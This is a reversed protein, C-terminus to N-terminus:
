AVLRAFGVIAVFILLMVLALYLTTVIGLVWGATLTSSAAYRGVAVEARARSGMVWAVPGTVMVLLGLLGLVLVTAAQPHEPLSVPRHAYLPAQGWVGLPEPTGAYPNTPETM